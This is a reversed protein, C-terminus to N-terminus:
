RPDKRSKEAPIIQPLEVALQEHWAIEGRLRAAKHRMVFQELPSLYKDIDDTHTESELLAAKLDAIRTDLVAPLEDILERDLRSIALDFPDPRVVINRLGDLRLGTLAARGADTVGWVQREPYAGEREVRVEDILGEAHLRKLAGYLAGVTIDTWEDVHEKEALQKLQHGHMDGEDALASLLYLRISSM